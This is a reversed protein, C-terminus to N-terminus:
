LLIHCLSGQHAIATGISAWELCLPKDGLIYLGSSNFYPCFLCLTGGGTENVPPFQSRQHGPHSLLSRPPLGSCPGTPVKLGPCHSPIHYPSPFTVLSFWRAHLCCHSSSYVSRVSDTLLHSRSPSSQGDTRM